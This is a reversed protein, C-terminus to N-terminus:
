HSCPKICYTCHVYMTCVKPEVIPIAQSRPKESHVLKQQQELPMSPVIVYPFPQSTNVPPPQQYPGAAPVGMAARHMQMQQHWMWQQMAVPNSMALASYDVPVQYGLYM